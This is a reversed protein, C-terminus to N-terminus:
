GSLTCVMIEKERFGEELIVSPQGIVGMHSRLSLAGERLPFRTRVQLAAPWLHAMPLIYQPGALPIVGWRM